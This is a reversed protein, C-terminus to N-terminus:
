DRVYRPYTTRAIDAAAPDIEVTVFPAATSTAAVLEGEPDFLWARGGLDAASSGRPEVLNCSACWAGSVVAAARGAALWRGRTGAPTARPVALLQVGKRGYARAHEFFWIETCIQVGVTLGAVEAPEFSGDGREYWSAEWYGEEDPLFYKDHLARLGQGECVFARNLRRGAEIVPATFLTPVGLEVVRGTWREHMAVAEQWAQADPEPDAALWPAFPMEPLLVLESAAKQVHVELRRWAAELDGVANPLECITVRRKEGM